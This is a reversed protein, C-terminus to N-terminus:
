STPVPPVPVPSIGWLLSIYHDARAVYSDGPALGSRILQSAASDGSGWRFPGVVVAFWGNDSSFVVTNPVHRQVRAAFYIADTLSARSAIQVWEGFEEWHATVGQPDAPVPAPAGPQYAIYASAPAMLALMTAGTLLLKRIM